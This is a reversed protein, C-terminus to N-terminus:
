QKIMPFGCVFRKNLKLRFHLILIEISEVNKTKKVNHRTFIFANSPNTSRSYAEYLQGHSFCPSTFDLGRWGTKSQGQTKNITIAFCVLLLFQRSRFVLIPFDDAAAPRNIKPLTLRAGNKLGSVCIFFLLNAFIKEVM